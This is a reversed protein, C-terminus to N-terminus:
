IPIEEIYEYLKMLDGILNKTYNHRPNEIIESSPGEEVIRGKHMVAIRDSLYRVVAIDHSILIYTLDYEKKLERLLELIQAQVSVDLASTPEDLILVKPETALARAIAVRQAQGGSLEIPYRDLIDERLGVAKMLEILREEGGKSWKGSARLVDKLISRVKMIPNLSTHPNQFVMQVSRRYEIYDEGKLSYIDRGKYLIRGSNPKIIGALCRALTSKGSGSEGVIGLSEGRMIRLTVNDLAKISYLPKGLLGRKIVYNVSVNLAEILYQTM